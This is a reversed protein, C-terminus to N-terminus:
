PPHRAEMCNFAIRYAFWLVLCCLSETQFREGLNERQNFSSYPNSIGFLFATKHAINGGSLVVLLLVASADENRWRARLISV